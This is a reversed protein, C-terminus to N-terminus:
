LVGGLLDGLEDAANLLLCITRDGRHGLSQALRLRTLLVDSCRTFGERENQAHDLIDLGCREGDALANELQALIHVRDNLSHTSHVRRCLADAALRLVDRSRGLLLCRAHLLDGGRAAAKGVHCGIQLTLRILELHLQDPLGHNFYNKM